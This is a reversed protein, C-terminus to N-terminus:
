LSVKTGAYVSLGPTGYGYVEEYATNFLNDVRGFLELYGDVKCSATLNVLIYEPLTVSTSTFNVYALDPRDGVYVVNLGFHATGLRYNASFDAQNQPRRILQAGSDLDAAWTYTYDARLILEQFPQISVFTEWGETLARGVNFYQGYPPTATTEFNIQNAFTTHFYTAGVRLANQALPQEFGADWGESTEALLGTNGYPSYIQYLSPAKFGTGYTAKLKTELGPVFYAAAARYTFQNGFSSVADLRGGLTTFLRDTLASQSEVFYSGTTDTQNIYTESPGSGYDATADERGWEQGGQFGAVLTEEKSLKVNNQWNIQSSQGEYASREYHSNVYSSFDDTFLQLDNTYSFGLVQEWPGLTWKWQDGVVWQRENLFYNPDDGGSGAQAPLSTRAQSFRIFADGDLNGTPLVGLRLSATMNGDPNNLTNGFSKDASPFGQTDFRSVSLAVNGFGDGASASAAERFSQYAGGEFMLSGKPIGDGKQTILNVVGATANTGYCTSMPGRVVEIRNIDDLFTQDWGAFERDTGMPNNLPIGDLLVLAHGQDAGRIFLGSNEGPAGNQLLALGPVGQLADQATQAQKQKIDQATIVTMSNAVQSIPTDLRSATVVMEQMVPLSGAPLTNASSEVAPTHGSAEEEQTTGSSGSAPTSSPTLAQASLPGLGGLFFVLFLLLVALQVSLIIRM